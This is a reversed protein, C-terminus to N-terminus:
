TGKLRRYESYRRAIQAQHDSRPSIVTVDLPDAEDRWGCSRSALDAAGVAPWSADPRVVGEVGRTDALVALGLNVQHVGLRQDNFLRMAEQVDLFAQEKEPDPAPLARVDARLKNYAFQLTRIAKNPHITHVDVALYLPFPLSLFHM